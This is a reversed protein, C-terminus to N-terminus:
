NKKYNITFKFQLCIGINFSSYIRKTTEMPQQSLREPHPQCARSDGSSKAAGMMVHDKQSILRRGLFGIVSEVIMMPEEATGESRGEKAREYM